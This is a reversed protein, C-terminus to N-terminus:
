KWQHIFRSLMGRVRRVGSKQLRYVHSASIDLSEAVDSVERSRLYIGEIVAKEKMPLRAIAYKVTQVLFNEEAQEPVAPATDQPEIGDESNLTSVTGACEKRIFDLMRGRIRHVAYLSFAVGKSPDYKDVAEILGVTGEQIIDMVQDMSRYPLATKFVLPQYAEIIRQRASEDGACCQEWLQKEETESLMSINNLEKIYAAIDM